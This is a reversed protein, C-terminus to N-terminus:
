FTLVRLVSKNTFYILLNQLVLKALYEESEAVGGTERKFRLQRRPATQNGNVSGNPTSSATSRM